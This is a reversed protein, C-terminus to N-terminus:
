EKRWDYDHTDKILVAAGNIRGFNLFSLQSIQEDRNAPGCRYATELGTTFGERSPFLNDFLNRKLKGGM